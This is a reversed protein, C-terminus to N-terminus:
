NYIEYIIPVDPIIVSFTTPTLTFSLDGINIVLIKVMDDYADDKISSFFIISLTNMKAMDKDTKWIWAYKTIKCTEYEEVNEFEIVDHNNNNYALEIIYGLSVQYRKSCYMKTM